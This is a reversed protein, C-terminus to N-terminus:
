NIKRLNVMQDFLAQMTKVTRDHDPHTGDLYAPNSQIKNIQDQLSDTTVTSNGTKDIGIDESFKEGLNSLFEIFEPNRGLGSNNVKGYLDESMFHKAARTALALKQPAATGFKQNIAARATAMEYDENAKVQQRATAINSLYGDLVANAQKKSLGNKHAIEGFWALDQKLAAQTQDDAKGSLDFQYDGPTAPRGLRDYVNSWDEDTKPVPIKETGILREANLYSKALNPVDKFKQLSPASRLDEPLGSLWSTGQEFTSPAITGGGQPTVDFSSATTAEAATTTTEESM